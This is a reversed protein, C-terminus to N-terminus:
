NRFTHNILSQYFKSINGEQYPSNEEFEVDIKPRSDTKSEPSPPQLSEPPRPPPRYIPDPYFPLERNKDQLTGRTIAETKDMILQQPVPFDMGDKTVKQVMPIKPIEQSKSTSAIKGDVPQPKRSRIGARGQGLRPRNQVVQKDQLQPKQKEPLISTDM